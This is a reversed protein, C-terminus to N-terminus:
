LPFVVSFTTGNEVNSAASIHGGLREVLQKTISLGLGHGDTGGQRSKDGRYFRQFIHPLDEEPIVATCNQVELRVQRKAETLRIRVTGGGPEYKLANEILGAAIRQLHDEDTRLPLEDPLVTELAINKEYAVSELQLAAKTVVASADVAQITLLADQREVDALTLMEGILRQMNKAANQTSDIWRSLDGVTAQPNERLISNNALIVSLPTKLDHSADAVFQKERRMAEEMPRVAVKSLQISVLLFCLMAGVWIALLVLILSLVSRGIYDTSAVAIKYPSGNGTRYYIAHYHWLTGFEKEQSVAAELIQSLTEGDFVMDQSLVVTESREPTYFVAMIGRQREPTRHAKGREPPLEPQGNPTADFPLGPGKAPASFSSLPEVVREMTVRLGNYYDRYMYVTIVAVMLLLVVGILLMNLQVFRKRYERM